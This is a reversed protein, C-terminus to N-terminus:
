LLTTWSRSGSQHSALSSCTARLVRKIAVTRDLRTDHAKWVEGMGGIGIPEVLVYPGLTTHPTWSDMPGLVRYCAPVEQEAARTPEDRM